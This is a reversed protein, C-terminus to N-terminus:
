KLSYLPKTVTNARRPITPHIEGIEERKINPQEDFYYYWSHLNDIHKRLGGKSQFRFTFLPKNSMYLHRQPQKEFLSEKGFAAGNIWNVFLRRETMNVKKLKKRQEENLTTKLAM